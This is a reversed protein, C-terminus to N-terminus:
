EKLVKQCMNETIQEEVIITGTKTQYCKVPMKGEKFWRWATTYCIGQSKAWKSLKM